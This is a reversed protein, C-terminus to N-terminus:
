LFNYFFFYFDNERKMLPSFRKIIKNKGQQELCKLIEVFKEPLDGGGSIKVDFM